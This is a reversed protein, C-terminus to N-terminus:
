ADWSQRETAFGIAVYEGKAFDLAEDNLLSNDVVYAINVPLDKM